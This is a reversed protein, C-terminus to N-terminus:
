KKGNYGDAMVFEKSSQVRTSVNVVCNLKVNSSRVTQARRHKAKALYSDTHWFHALGSAM